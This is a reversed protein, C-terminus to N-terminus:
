GATSTRSARSGARKKVSRKKASRKGTV